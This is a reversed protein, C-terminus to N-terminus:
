HRVLQGGLDRYFVLFNGSWIANATQKQILYSFIHIKYLRNITLKILYSDFALQNMYCYIYNIFLMPQNNNKIKENKREKMKNKYRM